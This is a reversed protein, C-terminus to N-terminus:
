GTSGTCCSPRRSPRLPSTRAATHELLETHLESIQRSLESPESCTSCSSLAVKHAMPVLFPLRAWVYDHCRGISKEIPSAEGGM